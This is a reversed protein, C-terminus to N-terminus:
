DEVRSAPEATSDYRLLADETWKHGDFWEWQYSIVCYKPPGNLNGLFRPLMLACRDFPIGNRDVGGDEAFPTINEAVEFRHYIFGHDDREESFLSRTLGLFGTSTLISLVVSGEYQGGRTHAVVSIPKMERMLRRPHEASPGGAPGFIKCRRCSQTLKQMEKSVVKKEKQSRDVLSVPLVPGAVDTRSAAAETGEGNRHDQMGSDGARGKDDTKKIENESTIPPLPINTELDHMMLDMAADRYFASVLNASWNDRAVHPCMERLRKVVGEGMAGGEHLNKVLQFSSFVDCCRILGLTNFKAIHIPKERKPVALMDMENWLSLFIRTRRLARNRGADGGMRSSFMAQFMLHCSLLFNRITATPETRATRMSATAEDEVPEPCDPNNRWNDFLAKVDAANMGDPVQIGRIRLWEKCEKASWKNYKKVSPDPIEVPPSPQMAEDDFVMSLWPLLMTAAAYSEAVYGGFKDDKFAICRVKELKLLKVSELLSSVCRCFEAGKGFRTCYKICTRLVAKQCNMAVHMPTEVLDDVPFLDWVAPHTPAGNEEPNAAANALFSMRHEESNWVPSNPNEAEMRLIYARAMDLFRDATKDNVCHLKLYARAATANWTKDLCYRTTAMNWVEKMGDFELRVAQSRTKHGVDGASLFPIEASSNACAAGDLRRIDWCLCDQCTTDFEGGLDSFAVLRGICNRCAEFPKSLRGFNCSTGFLPHNNSNGALMGASTRREPNDQIVAGLAVHLTARVVCQDGNDGDLRAIATKPFLEGGPAVFQERIEKLLASFYPGHDEKESGACLLQNVVRVPLLSGNDDVRYFVMCATCTWVSGRNSKSLRNPDWGDSWINAVCLLDIRHGASSDMPRIRNRVCSAIRSSVALSEYRENLHDIANQQPPMVLAHMVADSFSVHALQTGPIRKVLPQPVASMISEANTRNFYNSVFEKYTSPIPVLAAFEKGEKTVVDELLDSLISAFMCMKQPGLESAITGVRLYLSLRKMSSKMHDDEIVWTSWRSQMAPRMASLAAAVKTRGKAELVLIDVCEQLQETTLIPGPSLPASSSYSEGLSEPSSDMPFDDEAYETSPNFEEDGSSATEEVPLAQISAKAM